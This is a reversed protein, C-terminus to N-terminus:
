SGGNRKLLVPLVMGATMILMALFQLLSPVEGLVIMGTFATAVPVCPLFLSAIQPGLQRVAYTYLFIAAAGALFGQIVIQTVIEVNSALAFGNPVLIHLVPLPLCSLLAIAATATVSDVGWRRVLIAYASFMIGSGAFLLDGFLVDPMGSISPLIFLLLGGIILATGIARGRTIRENFAVRAFLFSFFVISAPCLAAAHTAPAYTLGWNIIMPYPLGVLLALALARRWGLARLRAIGIWWVIPLFVAGAGAFRLSAIDIATLHARLSFRAAVFQVATIIIMTLGALLALRINPAQAVQSSQM